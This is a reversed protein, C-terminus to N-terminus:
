ALYENDVRTPHQNLVELGRSTIRVVDMSSRELLGANKLSSTAWSVRKYFLVVASRLSRDELTIGFNAALRERIDRVSHDPDDGLIELLPLMLSQYDPIAM